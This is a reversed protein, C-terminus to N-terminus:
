GKACPKNRRKGSPVPISFYWTPKKWMAPQALDQDNLISAVIESDAFNMQCGYSEIYFKRSYEVPDDCVPAYSEGQRNEDHITDRKMNLMPENMDLQCLYGFLLFLLALKVPSRPPM